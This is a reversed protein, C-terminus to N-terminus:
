DRFNPIIFCNTGDYVTCSVNSVTEAPIRGEHEDESETRPISNSMGPILASCPGEKAIPNEDLPQNATGNSKNAMSHSENSSSRSPTRKDHTCLWKWLEAMVSEEKKANALSIHSEVEFPSRPRENHQYQDVVWEQTLAQTFGHLRTHQGM